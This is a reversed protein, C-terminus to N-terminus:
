AVDAAVTMMNIMKTVREPRNCYAVLYRFETACPDSVSASTWAVLSLSM